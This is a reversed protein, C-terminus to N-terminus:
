ITTQSISKHLMFCLIHWINKFFHSSYNLTIFWFNHISTTFLINYVMRSFAVLVYTPEQKTYVQQISIFHFKEMRM